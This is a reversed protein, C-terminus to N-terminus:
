ILPGRQLSPIGVRHPLSPACNVQRNVSRLVSVDQHLRQPLFWHTTTTAPTPLLKCREAARRPSPVAHDVHLVSAPLCASRQVPHRALSRVVPSRRCSRGTAKSQASHATNILSSRTHSHTLSHTLTRRPQSRRPKSISRCIDRMQRRAESVIVEERERLRRKSSATPEPLATYQRQLAGTAPPRERFLRDYPTRPRDTPTNDHPLNIHFYYLTPLCVSQARPAQQVFTLQHQHPSSIHWTADEEDFGTTRRIITPPMPRDLSAPQDTTSAESRTHRTQSQIM